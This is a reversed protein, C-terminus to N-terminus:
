PSRCAIPDLVEFLVLRGKKCHPCLRPDIGTVKELLEAWSLREEGTETVSVGLLEQCKKLKKRNRTSLIGYYRIKFFQDPLIHLLFRRTFELADLSMQKIRM